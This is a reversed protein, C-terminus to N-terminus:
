RGLQKMLKQGEETSLIDKLSAIAQSYDGSKALDAAKQVKTADTQQLMAILQQGAPSKALQMAEQLNFDQSNKQM